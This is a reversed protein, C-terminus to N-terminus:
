RNWVVEETCECGVYSAWGSLVAEEEEEEEKEAEEKEEEEEEKGGRGEEGM